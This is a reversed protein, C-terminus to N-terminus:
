EKKESLPDNDILTYGLVDLYKELIERSISKQSLDIDLDMNLNNKAGPALLQTITNERLGENTSYTKLLKEVIDGRKTIMLGTVEM